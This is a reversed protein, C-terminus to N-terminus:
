GGKVIVVMVLIMLIVILGLVFFFFKVFIIEMFGNGRYIFIIDGLIWFM